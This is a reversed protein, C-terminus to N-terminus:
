FRARLGASVARREVPYYVASGSLVNPPTVTIAASIDGIAKKGTINRVDVFADVGEAVRAGGTVGILAYGPTSVLNRYDAFPGDPVWEVNPAIHLADSGIRLEARYTHRPVVPLRNNGFQDDDRFRFDSYSYVQRLRLWDTPAIELGAEVGQHLTRDANFTAAPVSANTTFQLLEGKLTARYLALDWTVIGLTGRTGIEATWARQPRITSVVQSIPPTGINQFVEGFGPFEASRSYNAFFQVTEGPEFLLGFKPSFADFSIGGDLATSLKVDRKRYGDAYVGGAILTLQRTPRVRVEGYLNATRARQDADFLLAGTRGAINVFQRARTKGRRLEGGLTVEVPGTAYDARFFGGLDVSDQDIVQFIPHYLSKANVFGGVDLRFAGWDFSTRNQLRLSVIDRAQDGAVAAASAARPTTLAQDFTLAGPIEQKIDNYSAYFRTSVTDSFKLGVNGHFRFSRRKVHDRDGDSTDASIAAWGDVRDSAVGASVLGRYSDFSGVDGRLYFGEATRGTPTVGNVAGGLTGSGFRLANAGRYVELHDFFIPELEQFDGNDDALNIPVGDQLLTLGRMHFGRSLGSGRISIRVEQGYRPQLYVGPSFALTDRLSVVSKDAYDEYSVVDAGGATMQVRAEAEDTREPATVIITSNAAEDAHAPLAALCTALALLPAARYVNNM